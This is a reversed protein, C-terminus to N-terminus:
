PAAAAAGFAGGGIGPAPDGDRRPVGGRGVPATMGGGSASSSSTRPPPLLSSTSAESADALVGTAGRCDVDDGATPAAGLASKAAGVTTASGDASRMRSDADVSSM